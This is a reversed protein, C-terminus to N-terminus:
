DIWLRQGLQDLPPPQTTIDTQRGAYRGAAKALDIGQRQREQMDEDDDDAMQLALKLLMYQVSDSIIRPAGQAEDALEDLDVIGPMSLWAGYIAMSGSIPTFKRM